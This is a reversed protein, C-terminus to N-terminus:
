ERAACYAGVVTPNRIVNGPMAFPGKFPYEPGNGLLQAQRCWGPVNRKVCYLKSRPAAPAHMVTDCRPVNGIDLAGSQCVLNSQDDAWLDCWPHLRAAVRTGNFPRDDGGQCLHFPSEPPSLPDARCFRAFSRVQASSPSRGASQPATCFPESPAVPRDPDTVCVTEGNPGSRSCMKQWNTWLQCQPHARDFAALQADADYRARGPDPAQSCAPIFLLVGALLFKKRGLYIDAM